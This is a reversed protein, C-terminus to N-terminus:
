VISCKGATILKGAISYLLDGAVVKELIRGPFASEEAGSWVSQETPIQLKFLLKWVKRLPFMKFNNYIHM